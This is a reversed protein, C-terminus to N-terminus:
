VNEKQFLAPITRFILRFDNLLSHNEAYTNDLMLREEESMEASKGRKEVQWLGTIGAPAIFRQAYKDTTLKEAEYLPLPRNGVISMDGILVNVLQPLEDMSTNRLIKGVRTIRPDDKIKIFAAGASAKRTLAYQKECWSHKDAYLSAQCSTGMQKCDDCRFGATDVKETEAAAGYQNLHKLDKLRADANVYMSRFKFFKFIKYGTGVRLSYYFVPGKSELRVALATILLVPSLLLLALSSFVVDFIRKELPIKYASQGSVANNTKIHHWNSIIFPLRKQLNYQLQQKHFIDAIGEKLAIAKLHDNVHDSIIFFPVDAFKRAQLAHKLSIGNPGIIESRSLIAVINLKKKSWNNSLDIGNEFQLITCGPINLKGAAQILLEDAAILAVTSSQNEM